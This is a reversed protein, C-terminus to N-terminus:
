ATAHESYLTHGYAWPWVPESLLLWGPAEDELVRVVVVTADQKPNLRRASAVIKAAIERPHTDALGLVSPDGIAEEAGDTCLLFCDAERLRVEFSQVPIQQYTEASPRQPGITLDHDATLQHTRGERVLYLRSDGIHCVVARDQSALMMTVTTLMGDLEQSAEAAAVVKGMAFRLADLARGASPGSRLLTAASPTEARGVYEELASVATQAAIEGAPGRSSGDAVVYLGLGDHALYADENVLSERSPASAGGGETSM